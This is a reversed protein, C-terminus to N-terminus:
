ALPLTFRHFIRWPNQHSGSQELNSLLYPEVWGLCSVHGTGQTTAVTIPNYQNISFAPQGLRLQLRCSPTVDVRRHKRTSEFSWRLIGANRERKPHQTILGHVPRHLLRDFQPNPTQM